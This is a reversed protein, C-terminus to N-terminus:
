IEGREYAERLLNTIQRPPNMSKGVRSGALFPKPLNLARHTAEWSHEVSPDCYQGFIEGGPAGCINCFGYFVAQQDVWALLDRAFQEEDVLTPREDLGLRAAVALMAAGVTSRFLDRRNM